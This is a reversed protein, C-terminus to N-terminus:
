MFRFWPPPNISARRAVRASLRFMEEIVAELKQRNRAWVVHLEGEQQPLICTM